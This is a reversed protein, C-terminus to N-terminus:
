HWPLAPTCPTVCTRKDCKLVAYIAFIDLGHVSSKKLCKRLIYTYLNANFVRVSVNELDFQKVVEFQKPFDPETNPEFM